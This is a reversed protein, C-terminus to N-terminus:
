ELIFPLLREFGEKVMNTWLVLGDKGNALALQLSQVFGQPLALSRALGRQDGDLEPSGTSAGCHPPRTSVDSVM